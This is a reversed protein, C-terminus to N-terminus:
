NRSQTIKNRAHSDDDHREAITIQPGIAQKFQYCM